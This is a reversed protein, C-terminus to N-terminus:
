DPTTLKMVKGYPQRMSIKLGGVRRINEIVPVPNPARIIGSYAKDYGIERRKEIYEISNYLILSTECKKTPAINLNTAVQCVVM